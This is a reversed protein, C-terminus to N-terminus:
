TTELTLTTESISSAAGRVLAAIDPRDDRDFAAAVAEAVHADDRALVVLARAISAADRLEDATRDHDVGFREALAVLARMEAEGLRAGLWANGAAYAVRRADRADNAIDAMREVLAAPRMEPSRTISEALAPRLHWRLHRYLSDRSVGFQQVLRTIPASQALLADITGLESHACVRCSAGYPSANSLPALDSM